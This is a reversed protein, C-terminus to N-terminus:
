KIFREMKPDGVMGGVRLQPNALSDPTKNPHDSSGGLCKSILILGASDVDNKASFGITGDM